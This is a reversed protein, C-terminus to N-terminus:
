GIYTEREKEEGHGIVVLNAIWVGDRVCRVKVWCCLEDEEGAGDEGGGGDAVAEALVDPVDLVDM